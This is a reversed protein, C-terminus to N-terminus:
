EEETKALLNKADEARGQELFERAKQKQWRLITIVAKLRNFESVTITTYHEVETM